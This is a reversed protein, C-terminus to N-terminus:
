LGDSIFQVGSPYLQYAEHPVNGEANPVVMGVVPEASMAHEKKRAIPVV